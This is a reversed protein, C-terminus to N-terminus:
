KVPRRRRRSLLLTSGDRIGSEALGMSENLIEFGRVKVVFDAVPVGDPYFKELAAKKVSAVPESAGADVRATDWLEAVQVRVHLVDPGGGLTIVEDTTRLESVFPLM